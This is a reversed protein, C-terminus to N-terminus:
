LLIFIIIIVQYLYYLLVQLGIDHCTSLSIDDAKTAVNATNNHVVVHDISEDNSSFSYPFALNSDDSEVVLHKIIETDIKLKKPQPIAELETLPALRKFGVYDEDQEQSQFGEDVPVARINNLVKQFLREGVTILQKRISKVTIPETAKYHASKNVKSKGRNKNVGGRSGRKSKKSKTISVKDTNITIFPIGNDPFGQSQIGTLCLSSQTPFNSSSPTEQETSTDCTQEKEISTTTPLPCFKTLSEFINCAKYNSMIDEFLGDFKHYIHNDNKKMNIIIDTNLQFVHGLIIDVTLDKRFFIHNRPLGAHRTYSSRYFIGFRPISTSGSINLPKTKEVNLINEKRIIYPNGIVKDHTLRKSSQQRMIESIPIGAVQIFSGNDVPCFIPRSLLRRMLVEGIRSALRSWFPAWDSSWELISKITNSYFCEVDPCNILPMGNSEERRYRCGLSLCNQERYPPNSRICSTVFNNLIDVIRINKQNITTSIINDDNIIIPNIEPVIYVNKCFNIYQITDNDNIINIKNHSKIDLYYYYYYHLSLTIIIIIIIGIISYIYSEISIANPCIKLLHLSARKKSDDENM